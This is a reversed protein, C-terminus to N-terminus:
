GEPDVRAALSRTTRDPADGLAVYGHLLELPLVEDGAIPSRSGPPPVEGLWGAM